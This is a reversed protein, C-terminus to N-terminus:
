GSVSRKLKVKPIKKAISEKLKLSLVAIFMRACIIFDM